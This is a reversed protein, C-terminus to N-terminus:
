AELTTFFPTSNCVVHTGLEPEPQLCIAIRANLPVLDAQEPSNFQVTLFEGSPLELYYATGGDPLGNLVCTLIGTYSMKNEM